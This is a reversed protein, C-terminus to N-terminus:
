PEVLRNTRASYKMLPQEEKLRFFAVFGVYALVAAFTAALVGWFGATLCMGLPLGTNIAFYGGLWKVDYQNLEFKPVLACFVLSILFGTLWWGFLNILPMGYFSGEQGWIWYPVLKSMAPDLSLDWITLLFGSALAIIVFSRGRLFHRTLLFAPFVMTFWSLPIVWPVDGLIKAGLLDSYSYSGFPLGTNTGILEASASLTVSILLTQLGLKLRGTQYLFGFLVALSIWIEGQSFFQFSVAFIQPAMPLLALRQPNLAFFGFGFIAVACFIAFFTLSGYNKVFSKFRTNKM